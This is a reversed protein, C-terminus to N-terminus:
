PHEALAECLLPQGLNIDHQYISLHSLVPCLTHTFLPRLPIWLMNSLHSCYACQHHLSVTLLSTTSSFASICSPTASPSVRSGLNALRWQLSILVWTFGVYFRKWFIFRATYYHYDPERLHSLPFTFILLIVLLGSPLCYSKFLFLPLSTLVPFLILFLSSNETHWTSHQKEFTIKNLGLLELHHSINGLPFFLVLLRGAVSHFALTIPHPLM